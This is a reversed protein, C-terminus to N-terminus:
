RGAEERRRRVRPMSAILRDKMRQYYSTDDIAHAIISAIM